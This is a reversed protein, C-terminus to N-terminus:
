NGDEQRLFAAFSRSNEQEELLEALADWQGAPLLKGLFPQGLYLCQALVVTLPGAAELLAAVPESLNWRQLLCAWAQWEGRNAQM